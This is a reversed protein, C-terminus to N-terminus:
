RLVSDLTPLLAPQFGLFQKEQMHQYRSNEQTHQYMSKEQIHQYMSKQM